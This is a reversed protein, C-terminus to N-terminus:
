TWELRAESAVVSDMVAEKANVCCFGKLKM